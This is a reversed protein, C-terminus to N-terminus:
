SGEGGGIAPEAVISGSRARSHTDVLVAAANFPQIEGHEIAAIAEPVTDRMPVAEGAEVSEFLPKLGENVGCLCLVGGYRAAEQLYEILSAIALPAIGYVETFDLILANCRAETQEKLMARLKPVYAVDIECSLGFIKMDDIGSNPERREM